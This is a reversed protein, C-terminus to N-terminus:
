RAPRSARIATPIGDLSLGSETLKSQGYAQVKRLEEARLEEEAAASQDPKVARTRKTGAAPAPTREAAGGPQGSTASTPRGSTSGGPRGSM